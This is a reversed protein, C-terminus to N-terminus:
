WTIRYAGPLGAAGPLGGSRASGGGIGGNGICPVSVSMTTCTGGPGGAFFPDSSHYNRTMEGPNGSVVLDPGGNLPAFFFNIPTAGGGAGGAGPSFAVGDLGDDPGSIGGGGGSGGYAIWQGFSTNGGNTGAEGTGAQPRGGLGGAGIRITYSSRDVDIIAVTYGGAGGGGGPGAVQGFVTTTGAGGGGGGGGAWLEVLIRTVGAPVQWVLEEDEQHADPNWWGHYEFSSAPPGDAGPV